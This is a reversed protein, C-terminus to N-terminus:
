AASLDVGFEAAVNAARQGREWDDRSFPYQHAFGHPTLGYRYGETYRAATQM